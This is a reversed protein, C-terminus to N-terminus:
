PTNGQTGKGSRVPMVTLLPASTAACASFDHSVYGAETEDPPYVRLAHATVPHCSSEPYNGAAAVQLWVHAHGDPALRVVTAGFAPNRQAATGIQRGAGSGATVFSVGPYGAMACAAASTNTFDLPYYTSGAAGDAQSTDVTMTLATTKCAALGQSGSASASASPSGSGSTGASRTGDGTTTTGSPAGAQSTSGSHCAAALSVVAVAMVAAPLTGTPRLITRM